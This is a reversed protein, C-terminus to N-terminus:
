KWQLGYFFTYALLVLLFGYAIHTVFVNNFVILM